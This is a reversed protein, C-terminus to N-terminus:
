LTHMISDVIHQQTSLTPVNIDIRDFDDKTITDFVAGHTSALIKNINSILWYYLFLQNLEKTKSRLAYCSQNFAMERKLLATKGVTGRASIIIDNPKLLNTSSKQLGLETIYKETYEIYRNTNVFDKISIWPISGNWYEKIDTKPTGGSIIEIIKSLIM